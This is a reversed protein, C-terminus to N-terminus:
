FFLPEKGTRFNLEFFFNASIEIKRLFECRHCNVIAAVRLVKISRTLTSENVRAFSTMLAEVENKKEVRHWARSRRGEERIMHRRSEMLTVSMCTTRNRSRSIHRDCSERQGVTRLSAEQKEYTRAAISRRHVDGSSFRLIRRIAM